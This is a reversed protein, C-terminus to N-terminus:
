RPLRAVVHVPLPDALHFTVAQVTGPMDFHPLYGRSHWGRLGLAAAEPLLPTHSEALNAPVAMVHARLAARQAHPRDDPSPM